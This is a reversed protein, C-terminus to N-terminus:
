QFSGSRVASTSWSPHYAVPSRAVISRSPLMKRAPRAFSRITSGEPIFTHGCSTSSTSRASGATLSAATIGTGFGPPPVV